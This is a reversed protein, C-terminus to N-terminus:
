TLFYLLTEWISPLFPLEVWWDAAPARLAAGLLVYPLFTRVFDLTPPAVIESCAFLVDLEIWCGSTLPLTVPALTDCLELLKSSLM